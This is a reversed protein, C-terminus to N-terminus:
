HRRGSRDFQYSKDPDTVTQISFRSFLVQGGPRLSALTSLGMDLDGFYLTVGLREGIMCAGHAFQFDKLWFASLLRGQGTWGPVIQQQLAELVTLFRTKIAEDKLPRGQDLFAQDIALVDFFYGMPLDFDAAQVLMSKLHDLKGALTNPKPM